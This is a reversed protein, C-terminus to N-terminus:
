EIQQDKSFCSSKITREMRRKWRPMVCGICCVGALAGDASRGGGLLRRDDFSLMGCIDSQFPDDDGSRRGDELAFSCAANKWWGTPVPSTFEDCWPRREITGCSKRGSLAGVDVFFKSGTGCDRVIARTQIYMSQQPDNSRDLEADLWLNSNPVDM